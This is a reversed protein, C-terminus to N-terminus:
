ARINSGKAGYMKGWVNKNGCYLLAFGTGIRSM